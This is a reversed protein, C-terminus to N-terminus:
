SVPILVRHVPFDDTKGANRHKRILSWKSDERGCVRVRAAPDEVAGGAGSACRPIAAIRARYGTTSDAAAAVHARRARRHGALGARPPATCAVGTGGEEGGESWEVKGGFTMCVDHRLSRNTHPALRKGNVFTGSPSHTRRVEKEAARKRSHKIM